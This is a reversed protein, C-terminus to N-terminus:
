VDACPISCYLMTHCPMAHCVKTCMTSCVIYGLHIIINQILACLYFAFAHSLFRRFLILHGVFYLYKKLCLPVLDSIVDRWMLCTGIPVINLTFYRQFHEHKSSIWVRACACLYMRVCSYVCEIFVWKIQIVVNTLKYVSSYGLQSVFLTSIRQTNHIKIITKKRGKVSGMGIKKCKEKECVCVRVCESESECNSIRIHFSALSFSWTRVAVTWISRVMRGFEINM